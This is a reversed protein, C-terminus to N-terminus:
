IIFREDRSAARTRSRSSSPLVNRHSSPSVPALTKTVMSPSAANVRRYISLVPAIIPKMCIYACLACAEKAKKYKVIRKYMMKIANVCNSLSAHAADHRSERRRRWAANALCARQM